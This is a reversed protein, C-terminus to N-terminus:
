EENNCKVERKKGVKKDPVSVCAIEGRIREDEFDKLRERLEAAQVALVYLIGLSCECGCEFCSGDMVDQPSLCCDKAEEAIYDCLDIDDKGNGYRLCVREDKAYAYNLMTETNSQPNDTTSRKYSM